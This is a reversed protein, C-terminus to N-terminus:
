YHVVLWRTSNLLPGPMIPRYSIRRSTSLNARMAFGTPGREKAGLWLFMNASTAPGERRQFALISNNELQRPTTM